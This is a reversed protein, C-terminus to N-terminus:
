LLIALAKLSCKSLQTVPEGIILECYAMKECVEGLEILLDLKM